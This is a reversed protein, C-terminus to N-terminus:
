ETFGASSVLDGKDSNQLHSRHTNQNMQAPCRMRETAIDQATLLRRSM